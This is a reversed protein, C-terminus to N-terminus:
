NKGHLFSSHKESFYLMQKWSGLRSWGSSTLVLLTARPAKNCVRSGWGHAKQPSALPFTIYRVGFEKQLSYPYLFGSQILLYWVCVCVCVCVCVRGMNVEEEMSLSLVSHSGVIYILGIKISCLATQVLPCCSLLLLKWKNGYRIGTIIDRGKCANYRKIRSVKKM